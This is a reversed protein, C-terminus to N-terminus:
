VLTMAIQSPAIKKVRWNYLYYYLHGSGPAFKLEEFMSPENHMIDLANMVDYGREKALIMSAYMLEKMSYAGPVHYWSYAAELRKHHENNLVTSPLSYFSTLDTIAGTKQDVVVFSEVVKERPLLMHSVDEVTLNIHFQFQSLYETLIKHVEPVDEKQMPRLGEITVKSPLQLRKVYKSMPTNFPLASFGCEVLKKPNLSRHHYTPTSVPTPICVGATYM